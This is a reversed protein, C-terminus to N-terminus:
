GAAGLTGRRRLADYVVVAVANALNLSRVRPELIPIRYCRERHAAVIAAPLGATEAGFVLHAPGGSALPAATFPSEARASYLFLAAPRESALFAAWSEHVTWSLYPWYDLGARKLYRDELSFGLPRVLHLATRTAACLRGINGTNPPIEPHVLVVSLGHASEAAPSATSM